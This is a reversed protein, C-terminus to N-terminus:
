NTITLNYVNGGITAKVTHDGTGLNFNTTFTSDITFVGNSYTIRAGIAAPRSTGDIEVATLEGTPASVFTYSYAGNAKVMKYDDTPTSSSGGSSSSTPKDPEATDTAAALTIVGVTDSVASETGAAAVTYIPTINIASINAKTWDANNNMNGKITFGTVQGLTSMEMKSALESQTTDFDVSGATKLSYEAKTLKFGINAYADNKPTVDQGSAKAFVALGATAATMTVDALNEATANDTKSGAEGSVAFAAAKTTPAEKAPAVYLYIKHEDAAAGGDNAAATATAAEATSVFEVDSEEEGSQVFNAAFKVVVKKDTSAKSAIGYNLSVVQATTTVPTTVDNSTTEGTKVALGQPNFTVKIATPVVITDYDYALMNGTGGTSTPAEAFATLSSGLIMTASCLVAITKNFRKM